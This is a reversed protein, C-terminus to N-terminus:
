IVELSRFAKSKNSDINARLDDNTDHL